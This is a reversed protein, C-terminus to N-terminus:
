HGDPRYVPGGDGISRAASEMSAVPVMGLERYIEELRPVVVDSSFSAAIKARAASGMRERLLGDGLLIALAKRLASRDGPNVLYGNVGDEVADPIGGVPTTVAPIGAAMAELVSMPLGEFYSPLVLIGTSALLGRKAEGTVWGLIEVASEIGLERARAIVQQAEGDGACSLHLRPHAPHLEAIVELLDYIGKDRSMRGLFLLHTPDHESNGRSPPVVVPNFLRVIHRNRSIGSMWTEWQSSLVIVCDARDFVFRIFRRGPPHLKAYFDAFEGGHLHIITRRGALFALLIFASKRWFSVGSSTHIHVVAVRGSILLLVYRALTRAARAFKLMKSGDCHTPLYIIPWREFLGHQRYVNVVSSVGGKTDFATGLMVLYHARPRASVNTM